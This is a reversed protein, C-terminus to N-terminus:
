SLLVAAGQAQELLERAADLTNRITELGLHSESSAFSLSLTSLIALVQSHRATLIDMADLNEHSPKQHALQVITNHQNVAM